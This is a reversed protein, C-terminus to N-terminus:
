GIKCGTSPEFFLLVQPDFSFRVTKGTALQTPCNSVTLTTDKFSLTVVYRDGLYECSQVVAAYEGDPRIHIQEPRIGALLEGERMQPFRNLMPLGFPILTHQEIRAELINIPPQGIFRAVFLNAPQRYLEEPSGIQMIRGEHLVAIRDGMTLAETQDHTVHVTTIGLKKQLQTIERRMRARLDADLNSLPEDLLFLSPRRIIARGLAVRQRQGGSLQAPRQRLKDSLGLMQAVEDIRRRIEQRKIRATKLPFALNKEVTMHPYLSYNQFVLAVDREKPRLHDVRRGNIYIEGQDLQELGAILRLLTTKGCGSPGLLVLLEGPELEFSIDTLVRATGFSKFVNKLVLGSV